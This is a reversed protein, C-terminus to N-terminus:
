WRLVPRFGCATDLYAIRPPHTDHAGLLHRPFNRCWNNVFSQLSAAILNDDQMRIQNREYPGRLRWRV